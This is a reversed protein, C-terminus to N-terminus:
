GRDRTVRSRALFPLRHSLVLVQVGLVVPVCISRMSSGPPPRKPDLPSLWLGGGGSNRRGGGGGGGPNSQRGTPRSSRSVQSITATLIAHTYNANAM